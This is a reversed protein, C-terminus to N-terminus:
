FSAIFTSQKEQNNLNNFEYQFRAIVCTQFSQLLHNTSTTGYRRSTGTNVMYYNAFERLFKESHPVEILGNYLCHELQMNAFDIQQEFKYIPNGRDDSKIVGEDSKEFGVIMKANFLCRVIREQPVGLIVLEDAIARGGSETCDLSIICNNMKEYLWKFIKAQEQVTLQFLPINYRWKLLKNDGFFICVESPSGTTGIDSCIWSMEAPM